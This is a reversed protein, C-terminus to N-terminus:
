DCTRREDARAVPASLDPQVRDPGGRDAGHAAGGYPSRAYLHAVRDPRRPAARRFVGGDPKRRDDRRGGDPNAPRASLNAGPIRISERRSIRAPNDGTRGTTDSRRASGRRRDTGVGVS